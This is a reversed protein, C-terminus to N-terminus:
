IKFGINGIVKPIATCKLSVARFMGEKDINGKPKTESPLREALFFVLGATCDKSLKQSKILFLFREFAHVTDIIVNVVAEDEKVIHQAFPM